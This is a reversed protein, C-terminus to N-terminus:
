QKKNGNFTMSKNETNMIKCDVVNVVVGDFDLPCRYGSVGVIASFDKDEWLAIGDWGGDEWLAVSDWGGLDEGKIAALFERELSRVGIGRGKRADV